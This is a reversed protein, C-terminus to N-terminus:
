LTTFSFASLRQNIANLHIYVFAPYIDPKLKQLSLTLYSHPMKAV